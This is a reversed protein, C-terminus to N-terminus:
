LSVVNPNIATTFEGNKSEVELYDLGRFPDLHFGGRLKAFSDAVDVPLRQPGSSCTEVNSQKLPTSRRRSNCLQMASYIRQHAQNRSGGKNRLIMSYAERASERKFKEITNRKHHTM